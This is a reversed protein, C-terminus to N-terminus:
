IVPGHSQTIPQLLWKVAARKIEQQPLHPALKQHEKLLDLQRIITAQFLDCEHTSLKEQALTKLRHPDARLAESTAAQMYSHCLESNGTVRLAEKFSAVANREPTASRAIKSLGKELIFGGVSGLAGFAFTTHPNAGAMAGTALGFALGAGGGTLLGSNQHLGDQLAKPGTQAVKDLLTVIGQINTYLERHANRGRSENSLYDSLQQALPQM